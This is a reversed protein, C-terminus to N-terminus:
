LEKLLSTAQNSFVQNKDDAIDQLINKATELRERQLLSLAFYWQAAGFLASEESIAMLTRGAAETQNAQLARIGKWIILSDSTVNSSNKPNYNISKTAIVYSQALSVLKSEKQNEFSRIGSEPEVNKKPKSEAIQNKPTITEADRWTKIEPNPNPTITANTNQNKNEPTVVLQNETNHSSAWYALGITLCLGIIAAAIGYSIRFPEKHAAKVEQFNQSVKERLALQKMSARLKQQLVVEKQMDKDVSLQADFAIKEANSLENDLYKELNM